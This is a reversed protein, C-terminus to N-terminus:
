EINQKKRCYTTHRTQPRTHKRIKHPQKTPIPTINTQLCPVYHEFEGERNIRNHLTLGLMEVTRNQSGIAAPVSQRSQLLFTSLRREFVFIHKKCHSLHREMAHPPAPTRHINCLIGPKVHIVDLIKTQIGPRKQQSLLM